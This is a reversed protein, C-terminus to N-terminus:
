KGAEVAVAEDLPRMEADCFLLKLSDEDLMEALTEFPPLSPTTNQTSRQQQKYISFSDTMPYSNSSPTHAPSM